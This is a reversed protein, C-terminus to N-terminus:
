EYTSCLNQWSSPSSSKRFHKWSSFDRSFSCWCSTIQSFIQRSNRHSNILLTQPSSPTKKHNTPNDGHRTKDSRKQWIGEIRRVAAETVCHALRVSFLVILREFLRLTDHRRRAFCLNERRLGHVCLPTCEFLIFRRATTRGAIPPNM